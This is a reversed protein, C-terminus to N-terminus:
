PAGSGAHAVAQITRPLQAVGTRVRVEVRVTIVFDVQDGVQECSVLRGGNSRANRHAAGCGDGGTVFVAAGSLAALDAAARARHAAVLYGALCIGSLSLMLVVTMVGIMLMSGSGREDRVAMSM